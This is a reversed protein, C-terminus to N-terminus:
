LLKQQRPDARERLRAKRREIARTTYGVARAIEANPRGEAIMRDAKRRLEAISGTPGLPLMLTVGGRRVAFHACLKKAADDGVAEILWHGPKPRAPIHVETGGRARALKLAAELGAVEAIEALLAPLFGYRSAPETM